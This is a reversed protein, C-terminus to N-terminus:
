RNGSERRYKRWDGGAIVKAGEPRATVDIRTPAASLTMAALFAALCGAIRCMTFGMKM